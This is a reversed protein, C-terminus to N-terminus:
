SVGAVLSAAHEDDISLRPGVRLELAEIRDEIDGEGM